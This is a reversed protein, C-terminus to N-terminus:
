ALIISVPMFNSNIFNYTRFPYITCVFFFHWGCLQNKKMNSNLSLCEPILFGIKKTKVNYKCNPWLETVVRKICHDKFM